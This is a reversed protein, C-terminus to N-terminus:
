YQASWYPRQQIVQELFGPAVQEDEPISDGHALPCRLPDGQIIWVAQVPEYIPASTTPAILDAAFGEACPWTFGDSCILEGDHNEAVVHYHPLAALDDRHRRAGGTM